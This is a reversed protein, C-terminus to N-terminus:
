WCINFTAALSSLTLIRNLSTQDKLNITPSNKMCLIQGSTYWEDFIYKLADFIISNENREEHYNSILM